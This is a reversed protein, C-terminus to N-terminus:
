SENEEGNLIELREKNLLISWDLWQKTPKADKIYQLQEIRAEVVTKELEAAYHSEIADRTAVDSLHWRRDREAESIEGIVNHATTKAYLAAHEDLVDELWKTDQKSM